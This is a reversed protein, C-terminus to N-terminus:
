FLNYKKFFNDVEEQAKKAAAAEIKDTKKTVKRILTQKMKNLDKNELAKLINDIGQRMNNLTLFSFNNEFFKAQVSAYNNNGLAYYIDGGQTGSINDSKKIWKKYQSLGQLGSKEFHAFGEMAKGTNKIKKGYNFFRKAIDQQKIITHNGIANLFTKGYGKASSNLKLDGTVSDYTLNGMALAEALSLETNYFIGEKGTKYTIVVKTEEKTILTRVQDLALEAKKLIETSNIMQKSLNYLNSNLTIQKLYDWNKQVTDLQNKIIKLKIILNNILTGNVREIDKDFNQLLDELGSKIVQYNHDAM